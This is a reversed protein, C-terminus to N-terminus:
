NPLSKFPEELRSAVPARPEIEARRCDLSSIATAM